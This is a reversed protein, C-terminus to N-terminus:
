FSDPVFTKLFEIKDQSLKIWFNEDDLRQLEHKADLIVISNQPLGAIQIKLKEIEKGTIETKNLEIAKEIKELRIGFLRVPL